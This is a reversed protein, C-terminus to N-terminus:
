SLWGMRCETYYSCYDISCVWSLVGSPPFNGAQIQRHAERVMEKVWTVDDETRQVENVKIKPKVRNLATHFQTHYIGSLITYITSQVDNELERDSFSKERWKHDLIIQRGFANRVVADLYGMLAIGDLEVEYRQEVAVPEYQPLIDTLYQRVLRIGADKLKGPDKGQWEIYTLEIKPEGEEDIIQRDAITKKWLSDFLDQAEDTSMRFGALKKNYAGAVVDHYVRGCLMNANTVGPRQRIYRYEYQRGCRFLTSMQTYSLRKPPM